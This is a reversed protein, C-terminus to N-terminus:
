YQREDLRGGQIYGYITEAQWFVFVLGIIM